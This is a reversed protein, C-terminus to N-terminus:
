PAFSDGNNLVFSTQGVDGALRLLSTAFVPDNPGIDAQSGRYAICLLSRYTESDTSALSRPLTPGEGKMIGTACLSSDQLSKRAALGRELQAHSARRKFLASRRITPRYLQCGPHASWLTTESLLTARKRVVSEHTACIEFLQHEASSRRRECGRLTWRIMFDELHDPEYSM